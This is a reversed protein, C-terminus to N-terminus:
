NPLLWFFQHFSPRLTYLKFFFINLFIYLIKQKLSQTYWEFLWSSKSFDDYYQENKRSFHFWHFKNKLHYLQILSFNIRTEFGWITKEPTSMKFIYYTLHFLKFFDLERYFQKERHVIIFSLCVLFVGWHNLLFTAFYSLWNM